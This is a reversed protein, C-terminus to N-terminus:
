TTRYFVADACVRNRGQDKAMYLMQDAANLNNDLSEDFQMVAVGVSATVKLLTKDHMVAADAIAERVDECVDIAEDNTMGGLLMVFEEGGLRGALCETEPLENQTVKAVARIVADGADHGYTDNVKKFHDIDLIALSATRGKARLAAIQAHAREFFARRNYLGTLFDREALYQLRKIQNLTEINGGIRCRVEEAVFPSYVFDSAGAKLLAASLFPDSSASIGIIRIQEPPYKARIEQTLQQGNMDAMHYDTIVLRIDGATELIQLAERGSSAEHIRYNQRDLIEALSKRASATDDVILISSVDGDTVRQITRIIQDVTDTADKIFYDIVNTAGARERVKRNLMATFLITPVDAEQLLDVIEGDPADPLNMGTLALTPLTTDLAQKAEAYTKYWDVRVRTEAEIRSKLMLAM